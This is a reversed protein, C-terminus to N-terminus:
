ASPSSAQPGSALGNARRIFDALEAVRNSLDLASIDAAESAVHRAIKVKNFGDSVRDGNSKQYDLPKAFRNRGGALKEAVPHARRVAELRLVAPIYNEVERGASLWGYGGVEELQRLVRQKTEGIAQSEAGRDSDMVVAPHRNIPLLGVFDDVEADEASLHSLLRGGYFMISFHIGERLDPAVAKLWHKLYIRDSPGEVWVISNSQLLDSPRYGLESCMRRRSLGTMLPAVTAVGETSRVGFVAAAETDIIHASHTTIFFQSETERAIFSMFKKQLEPHMHVEPEELLITRRANLVIRSALMFLEHIGSGLAEVPVVSKDTRVNITKRDHPIQIDVNPRNIVEGIFRRLREFDEKLHQQDYPPYALAALEDILHDGSVAEKYESAFEPLRTEIQRFSPIYIPDIDSVQRQLLTTMLEPHWHHDFGGGSQGTVAAWLSHTLQQDVGKSQLEGNAVTLRGHPDLVAPLRLYSDGHAHPHSAFLSRWEKRYARNGSLYSEVTEPDVRVLISRESKEPVQFRPASITPAANQDKRREGKHLPALVDRIFRLVNSKGSNNAGIFVNIKGLPGVFQEDGGFNRFRSIFFGHLM